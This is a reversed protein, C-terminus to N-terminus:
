WLEALTSGRPTCRALRPHPGARWGRNTQYRQAYVPQSTAQRSAPSGLCATDRQSPRVTAVATIAGRAKKM